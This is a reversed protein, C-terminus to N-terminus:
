ATETQAELIAAQKAAFAKRSVGLAIPVSDAPNAKVVETDYWSIPVTTVYHSPPDIDAMAQAMTEYLDGSHRDMNGPKGERHFWGSRYINMYGHMLVGQPEQDATSTNTERPM